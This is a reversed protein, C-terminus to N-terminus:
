SKASGAGPITCPPSAVYPRRCDHSSRRCTHSTTRIFGKQRWEVTIRGPSHYESRPFAGGVPVRQDPAAPDGPAQYITRMHSKGQEDFSWRVDLATGGGTRALWIRGNRDQEVLWGVRRDAGSQRRYVLLAAIAATTSAVASVLDFAHAQLYHTM